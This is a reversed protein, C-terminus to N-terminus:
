NAINWSLIINYIYNIKYDLYFLIVCVLGYRTDAPPVIPSPCPDCNGQVSEEADEAVSEM